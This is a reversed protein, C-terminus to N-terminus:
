ADKLPMKKKEIKWEPVPCLGRKDGVFMMGANKDGKLQWLQNHFSTAVFCLVCLIGGAAIAKRVGDSLSAQQLGPQKAL